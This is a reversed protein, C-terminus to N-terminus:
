YVKTVKRNDIKYIVLSKTKEVNIPKRKFIFKGGIETNPIIPMVTIFFSNKNEAPIVNLYAGELGSCISPIELTSIEDLTTKIDGSLSFSKKVDLSVAEGEITFQPLEGGFYTRSNQKVLNSLLQVSNKSLIKNNPILLSKYSHDGISLNGNVIKATDLMESSIVDLQIGMATLGGILKLIQTESKSCPIPAGSISTEVPYVLATEGLPLKFGTIAETEVAIKIIDPVIDWTHHDPYGPGFNRDAYITGTYGYCHNIWNVSFAALLESWYLPVEDDYDVGWQNMHAKGTKSYRALSKALVDFAIKRYKEEIDGTFYHEFMGDDTYGGDTSHLGKWISASGHFMDDAVLNHWTQHVGMKVPGWLEESKEWCEKGGGYVQDMLLNFYDNRVKIHSNDDLELILSYLKEELKYKYKQQFQKYIGSSVVFKGFEVYYGPEDWIIGDPQVEANKYDILLNQFVEKHEESEYAYMNTMFRPFAVVYWHGQPLETKGFVEVQYAGRNVFFHHGETIDTVSSSVVKGEKRQYAFVKEVKIPNYWLGVETLIHSNRREPYKYRLDYRGDVVKVEHLKFREPSPANEFGDYNTIRTFYDAIPMLIEAGYGTKQIIHNVGFRPDLGLTFHIDAKKCLDSIQKSAAIVETDFINYRSARLMVHVGKFGAKVIDNFEKEIQVHDEIQKDRLLWFIPFDTKKVKENITQGALTSVLMLFVIVISLLTKM